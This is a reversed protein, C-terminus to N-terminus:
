TLTVGTTNIREFIEIVDNLEVHKLTIHPFGFEELMFRLKKSMIKGIPNVDKYYDLETFKQMFKTWTEVWDDYKELMNLPFLLKEFQDEPDLEKTFILIIEAGESKLFAGFNIYFFSQETEGPLNFTPSRLAYYVSSVRQQGDLIIERGVVNKEDVGKIPTVGIEEQNTAEWFLLSGIYYGHFISDFFNRILEKKWVFFRQFNPIVLENRECRTVLENIRYAARDAIVQERLKKDKFRNELDDRALEVYNVNPIRAVDKDKSIEDYAELVDDKIKTSEDSSMGFSEIVFNNENISTIKGLGLCKFRNDTLRFLIGIPLGIEYSARMFKKDTEHQTSDSYNWNIKLTPHERDIKLEWRSKPNLYIAQAYGTGEPYYTGRNLSHLLYPANVSSSRLREGGKGSGRIGKSTLTKGAKKQFKRLTQLQVTDVKGYFEELEKIIYRKRNREELTNAIGDELIRQCEDILKLKEDKSLLEDLILKYTNESENFKVIKNNVLADFVPSNNFYEVSQKPNCVHLEEQIEKKSLKNEDNRLLARLMVIQYNKKQKLNIGSEIWTKLKTYNM